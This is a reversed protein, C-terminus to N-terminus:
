IANDFLVALRNRHANVPNDIFPAGKFRGYGIPLDANKLNRVATM